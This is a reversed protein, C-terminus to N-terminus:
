VRGENGVGGQNRDVIRIPEEVLKKSLDVKLDKLPLLQMEDEVKRKRLYCVNFTNHIGALEPPLDLVVRKGFRIVGKWPSVKLYVHDGVSFTVPRRRPDAYMKQRDRAAKLKERAIAVKEATMQVIKPGPQVTLRSKHAETLILDRLDRLMPVWMRDHFTKLGSSDDDLDFKRKTMLESKVHEDELAVVQVTKLQDILDSTISLRLFKVNESSKKRSLADAVVNAKGPHYKIECNYDKILEQWRSQSNLEKYVTFEQSRAISVDCYVVFDNSGKPLALMPAQCLLQKLTQFAKEQEDNWRFAIDKRTLKTLSGAIKRSIRSLDEAFIAHGLFQVERLWFECKSFNAFLQERKLLNLVQRLHEAHEVEDKKKVFLVLAGWPSSSPRIFGCDLLEQIQSMMEAIESPALRYPAKTIPTTGPMLEIKYEVERVPPLGPLEDPFVKPFESVVLIDSVTKKKKKTNIVYAMFSECGKALSKKAKMMSILQFSFGGREGRAVVGTRATLRFTVIKKDCKIHAKHLSMWNIGLVVDFSPIPLLRFLGLRQQHLSRGRRGVRPLLGEPQHRVCVQGQPDHGIVGCRICRRTAELCQGKHSSKCNSCWDGRGFGSGSSNQGSKGKSQFGGSKKFNSGSQSFTQGGQNVVNGFIRSRTDKVDSKAMKALVIAQSLSTATRVFTRYEPLIVNVFHQIRSSEDPVWQQVFRLNDMYKEVVEDITMQPTMKM